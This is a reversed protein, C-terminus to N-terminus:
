LRITVYMAFYSKRNDIKRCLFVFETDSCAQNLEMDGDQTVNTQWNKTNCYFWFSSM